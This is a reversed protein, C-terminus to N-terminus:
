IYWRNNLYGLNKLFVQRPDAEAVMPAYINYKTKEGTLIEIKKNLQREKSAKGGDTGIM